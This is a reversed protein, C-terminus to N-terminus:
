TERRRKLIKFFGEVHELSERRFKSRDKNEANRSTIERHIARFKRIADESPVGDKWIPRGDSAIQTMLSKLTDKAVAFM